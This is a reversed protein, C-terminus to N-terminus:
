YRNSKAQRIRTTGWPAPMSAGAFTETEPHKGTNISKSRMWGMSEENTAQAVTAARYPNSSLSYSNPNGTEYRTQVKIGHAENYPDETAM